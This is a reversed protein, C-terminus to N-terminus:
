VGVSFRVIVVDIFGVVTFEDVLGVVALGDMLGVLELGIGAVGEIIGVVAFDVVVEVDTGVVAFGEM